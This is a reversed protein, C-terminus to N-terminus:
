ESRARRALELPWNLVANLRHARSEQESGKIMVFRLGDPYVDYNPRAFPREYHGEFLLAPRGAAFESSGSVPVAMMRDGQWFFMERGNRSWVPESGGGNSVQWRGGPGPFPQVYVEIRGSEDSTYALWRGDPSFAPTGENAPGSLFLRPERDGDVPVVWIDRGTEPHVRHYALLRGDPSWSNPNDAHEGTTLREEPGSGDARKWFLNLPGARNSQFAVRQGNPTWVPFTNSAEFTLRTLRGDALDYLYLDTSAGAIELVLRQGDPSVRPSFYPRAPAPLPAAKGQRDVLVLSGENPQLGGPVYALWTLGALAFQAAGTSAQRVGEVLPVPEGTVEMRRLDFPVAMLAGARAYILHGSPAYRALTGGQILVRREGGGAPQVVIQSDEWRAGHWV